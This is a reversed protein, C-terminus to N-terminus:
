VGGVGREEEVTQTGFLNLRASPGDIDTARQLIVESFHDGAGSEPICINYGTDFELRTPGDSPFNTLTWRGLSPSYTVSPVYPCRRLSQGLASVNQTM